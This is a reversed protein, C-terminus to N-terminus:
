RGARARVAAASIDPSVTEESEVAIAALMGRSGLTIVCRKMGTDLLSRAARFLSVDDTIAVGSLLEAELRNPKLTHIRSLVPRLKGAKATSVPDAAAASKEM